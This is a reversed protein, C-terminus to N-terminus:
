KTMAVYVGDWDSSPPTKIFEVCRASFVSSPKDGYKSYLSDFLSKAKEFDQHRYLGLAEGFREILAKDPNRLLEYITVPKDKGKVKILDLERLGAKLESLGTIKSEDLTNMHEVTFETVLIHTGYMKNLGELRSSLNVTDGIATYDFRVDTGMNGVIADGTNIGIGIDIEMFGKQRFEDNVEKLKEIMEIGTKCAVVSHEAIDLPANYVAMIADGIYKDLMGKHKLVLQTMPGLYHNLLLVLNEPSLKESITTFGRIDSFLVTIKRKEGGLKLIDPNKMIQSVLEPSVYNTFAKKLFRTKQEEVLNRYAESGLYSLTISLIPFIVSTNLLYEKFLVFNLASYLGIAGLFILLATITRRFLSLLVTLMIPSFIIFFMELGIVRGDRILFERQLVSSAVTAHIEVGPLTADVPTVRLDAIGIETTGVFVLADKLANPMLRGEIIDVSSVTNFIGQRGYYNLALRGSEDTPILRNGVLLRDLGYSAIDLIIEGGLYHKLSALALSPYIEGEYLMLLESLRIVGDSDPIVNFFGSSFVSESILPINTEAYPYSAFPVEEVGEAIKIVKVRSPLLVDSAKTEEHRFFYGAIVNGAKMMSDSLVRDSALNSPESFVIDLAITKAGYARLKDILEAIVRRNWPWRGLENISKSDIAAIVVNGDPKVPPRLKFRADKLRLDISSLFDIKQSYLFLAIAASIVGIGLFILFRRM